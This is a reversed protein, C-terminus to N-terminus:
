QWAYQWAAAALLIIAGVVALGVLGAWIMLMFHKVAPQRPRNRNTRARDDSPTGINSRM